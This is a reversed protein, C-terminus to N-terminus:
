GKAKPKAKSAGSKRATTNGTGKKSNNNATSKKRSKTAKSSPATQAVEAAAPPATGYAGQGVRTGYLEGIMMSAELENAINALDVDDEEDDDEAEADQESDRMAEAVPPPPPPPPLEAPQAPPLVAEFGNEDESSDEGDDDSDTDSERVSSGSDSRQYPRQPVSPASSAALNQTTLGAPSRNGNVGLPSGGNVNPYQLHPTYQWTPIPSSVGSKGNIGNSSSSPIPFRRTPGGHGGTTSEATTVTVSAAPSVSVLAPTNATGPVRDEPSSSSSYAVSQLPSPATPQNSLNASRPLANYPYAPSAAKLHTNSPRSPLILPPNRSPLALPSGSTAGGTDAVSSSRSLTPRGAPSTAATALNVRDTRASHPHPQAQSSAPSPHKLSSLPSHVHHSHHSPPDPDAPSDVFDFEEVEDAQAVHLPGTDSAPSATITSHHQSSYSSYDRKKSPPALNVHAAAATITTTVTTRSSRDDNYSTRSNHDRGQSRTLNSSSTSADSSNYRPQSTESSPPVTSPVPPFTSNSLGNAQNFESHSVEPPSSSSSPPRHNSASTGVKQPPPITSAPKPLALPTSRNNLQQQALPTPKKQLPGPDDPTLHVVNDLRHLIWCHQKEDWVVACEIRDSKLPQGAWRRARPESAGQRLSVDGSATSSLAAGANSLEAPHSPPYRLSFTHPKSSGTATAATALRLPGSPFPSASAAM